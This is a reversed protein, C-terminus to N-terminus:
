SFLKKLKGLFGKENKKKSFDIKSYKSLVDAEADLKEKFVQMWVVDEDKGQFHEFAVKGDKLHTFRTRIHQMRKFTDDWEPIHERAETYCDKMKEMYKKVGDEEVGFKQALMDDFLVYADFFRENVVRNKSSLM